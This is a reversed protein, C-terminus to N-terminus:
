KLESSSKPEVNMNMTDGVKYYAFMAFGQCIGPMKQLDKKIAISM